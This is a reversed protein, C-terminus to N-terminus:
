TPVAKPPDIDIGHGLVASIDSKKAKGHKPNGKVRNLIFYANRRRRGSQRAIFKAIRDDRDAAHKRGNVHGPGKGDPDITVLCHPEDPGRRARLFSGATEPGGMELDVAM